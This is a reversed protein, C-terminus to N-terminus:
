RHRVVNFATADGRHYDEAYLVRLGGLTFCTEQVLLWPGLGQLSHRREFDEPLMAATIRAISSTITHGHGELAATVSGSWDRYQIPGPLANRLVTNFNVM